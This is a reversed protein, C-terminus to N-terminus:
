SRKHVLSSYRSILAIIMWVVGFVNFIMHARAARKAHYNGGLSALYATITTGINEGLVIAAATPFDIWGKFDDDIWLIYPKAYAWSSRGFHM